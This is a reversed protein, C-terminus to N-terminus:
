MKCGVAPDEFGKIAVGIAKNKGGEVRRLYYDQIPNNARSLSFPGRPSDIKAKRVAAAFADKKTIDGKVADLGIRLIQAADYGQM